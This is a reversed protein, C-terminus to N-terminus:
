WRTTKEVFDYPNLKHTKLYQSIYDVSNKMIKVFLELPYALVLMDQGIFGHYYPDSELPSIEMAGGPERSEHILYNRYRYLLEYHQCELIAKEEEATTSLEFLTETPQDLTRFPINLSGEDRYKNLIETVYIKLLSDSKKEKSIQESLFPISVLKGGDWCRSTELFKKFRDRNKYHLSPFRKKPFRIGALTDLATILLAKKYFRIQYNEGYKSESNEVDYKIACISKIQDSFYGCFEDIIEDNTPM